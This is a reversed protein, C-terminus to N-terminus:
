DKQAMKDSNIARKMRERDGMKDPIVPDPVRRVQRSNPGPFHSVRTNYEPVLNFWNEMYDNMKGKVAPNKVGALPRPFDRPEFFTFSVPRRQGDISQTALSGIAKLTKKGLNKFPDTGDYGWSSFSGWLGRERVLVIRTDPLTRLIKDVAGTTPLMELAGRQLRGSPYLVVNKGAQLAAIVSSISEQVSTVSKKPALSIDVLPVPDFVAGIAKGPLGKLFKAAMMPKPQFDKELAGLLLGPGVFAEHTSLFLVGTTGQSKVEELGSLTVQYRRNLVTTLANVAHRRLCSQQTSPAHEPSGTDSGHCLHAQAVLCLSLSSLLM